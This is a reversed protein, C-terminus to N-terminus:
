ILPGIADNRRLEAKQGHQNDYANTFEEVTGCHPTIASAGGPHRNLFPTLDYVYGNYGVWCSEPSNHIMIDERSYGDLSESVEVEVNNEQQDETTEPDANYEYEVDDMVGYDQSSLDGVFSSEQFGEDVAACGMLILASLALIITTAKM